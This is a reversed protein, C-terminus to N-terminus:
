ADRWGSGCWPIDVHASIRLRLSLQAAHHQIHRINYPYLEARSFARRAFDARACLTDATEAAIAVAAKDRCFKLYEIISEREYISTPERPELQEYDGFFDHHARHFPQDRFSEANLGLYYDTFFLTHFAVQSFPYNGVPLNWIAVPCRDVCLNLTCLAADFQSAILRKFEDLM